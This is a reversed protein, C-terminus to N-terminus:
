TNTSYRHGCKECEYFVTQGEDVSRMQMTYFTLLPNECKPCPEEVTARQAKEKTMSTANKRTEAVGRIYASETVVADALSVVAFEQADQCVSCTSVGDRNPLNMLNFCFECFVGKKADMASVTLSM